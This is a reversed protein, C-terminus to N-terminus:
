VVAVRSHQNTPMKGDGNILCVRAHLILGACLPDGYTKTMRGVSRAWVHARPTRLEFIFFYRQEKTSSYAPNNM